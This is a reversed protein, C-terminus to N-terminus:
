QNGLRVTAPNELSQSCYLGISATKSSITSSGLAKWVLCFWRSKNRRSEIVITTWKFFMWSQRNPLPTHEEELSSTPAMNTMLDSASNANLKLLFSQVLHGSVTFGTNWSDTEPNCTQWLFELTQADEYKQDDIITFDLIVSIINFLKFVRQLNQFFGSSGVKM